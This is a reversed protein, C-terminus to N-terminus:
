VELGKQQSEYRVKVARWVLFGLLDRYQWLARLQLDLWGRSPEIIVQHQTSLEEAM